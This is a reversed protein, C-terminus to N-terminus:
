DEDKDHKADEQKEKEQDALTEKEVSVVAGTMADVLVETIDTTGPTAIDFSWVLKGDEKELEGEKISGNPAKTLATKEADTRSIKAQAENPSACGAIGAAILACAFLSGLMMRTKM